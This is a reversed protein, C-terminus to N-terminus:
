HENVDKQGAERCLKDNSSKAAAEEYAKRLPGDPLKQWDGGCNLVADKCANDCHLEKDPIQAVSFTNVLEDPNLPLIYKGCVDCM